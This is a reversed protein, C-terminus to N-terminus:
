TTVLPLLLGVIEALAALAFLATAWFALSARAEQELEHTRLISWARWAAIPALFLLVLGVRVPLGLATLLPLATFAALAALAHWRTAHEVGLRVALTKKGALADGQADPVAVALLMSFLLLSAPVMVLALHGLGELSPKYLTFGFLPVLIAVVLTGDLEGWGTSHLRLPPASYFWALVVIVLSLPWLFPTPQRAWLAWVALMGLAASLGAGLLASWRPLEGRPLVRSGGAWRTPTANCRDAEYDFYENAYHTMLQFGTIAMQGLAYVWANWSAGEVLAVTVGLGYMTTGGVLFLPRGLRAFAWLTRLLHTVPLPVFRPKYGMTVRYSPSAMLVAEETRIRHYLVWLHAVTGLGATIWASHVLPLAFLECFVALYNPHRIWRFPGGTAVMLRGRGGEDISDMIAVNWHAGLSRITWWRLAIAGGCLVLMTVSLLPWAPRRVLWAELASGALIGVHVMVMAAFHRERVESAGQRRMRVRNRRSLLLEAVRIAGVLVLLATYISLTWTLEM